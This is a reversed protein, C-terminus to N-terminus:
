KVTAFMFRLTKKCESKPITIQSGNHFNWADTTQVYFGLCHYKMGTRISSFDACAAVIGGDPAIQLMLVGAPIVTSDLPYWTGKVYAINAKAFDSAADASLRIDMGGFNANYIEPGKDRIDGAVYEYVVAPPTNTAPQSEPTPAPIPTPIPISIPIPRPTPTIWSPISICGAFLVLILVGGRKLRKAIQMSVEKKKSSYRLARCDRGAKQM